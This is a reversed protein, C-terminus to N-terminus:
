LCSLVMWVLVLLLASLRQPSPTGAAPTGAAPTPGLMHHVCGGAPGSVCGLCSRPRAGEERRGGAGLGRGRGGVEGWGGAGEEQQEGAGLGRRARGWQAGLQRRGGGRLGSWGSLRSTAPDWM